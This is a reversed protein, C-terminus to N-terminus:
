PSSAGSGSVGRVLLMRLGVTEGGDRSEWMSYVGLDSEESMWKRVSAVSESPVYGLHRGGDESYVAISEGAGAGAPETRLRLKSGPSIRDAPPVELGEEGPPEVSVSMLGVGEPLKQWSVTEDEDERVIMWGRGTSGEFWEARYGEPLTVDLSPRGPGSGARFSRAILWALLTVAALILLIDM